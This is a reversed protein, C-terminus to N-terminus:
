ETPWWQTDGVEVVGVEGDVFGNMDINITQSIIAGTEVDVTLGTFDRIKGWQLHWYNEEDIYLQIEVDQKLVLGARSNDQLSLALNWDKVGAKRSTNGGTCSNNFTQNAALLNLTANLINCVEDDGSGSGGIGVFVVKAGQLSSVVEVENDDEIVDDTIELEGVASFNVTHSIIQGSDWAWQIAISDVIAEGGICVGNEGEIDSDPATYGMFDFVEGPLVAPIGGFANYSGSWDTVGDARGTGGKTNSAVFPTNAASENISWNRTAAIADSNTKAAGYKGSHVGV